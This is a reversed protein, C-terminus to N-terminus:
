DNVEDIKDHAVKIMEKGLLIQNVSTLITTHYGKETVQVLMSSNDKWTALLLTSYKDVDDFRKVYDPQFSVVFSDIMVLVKESMKENM